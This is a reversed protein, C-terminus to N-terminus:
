MPFFIGISHQKQYFLLIEFRLVHSLKKLFFPKILHLCNGCVWEMEVFKFPSFLAILKHQNSLSIQSLIVSQSQVYHFHLFILLLLFIFFFPIYLM